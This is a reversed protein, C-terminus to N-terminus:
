EESDEQETDTDTDPASAVTKSKPGLQGSTAPSSARAMKLMEALDTFSIDMGRVVDVIQLNELETKQKELERLKSQFESIKGKTKDIENMVRAIKASM